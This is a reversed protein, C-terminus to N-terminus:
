SALWSSGTEERRAPRPRPDRDAPLVRPQGGLKAGALYSGYIEPLGYVAHALNAADHHTEKYWEEYVKADRLRYDASLRDRSHRRAAAAPHEGM